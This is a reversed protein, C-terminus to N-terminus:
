RCLGRRRLNREYDDNVEQVKTDKTTVKKRSTVSNEGQRMHAPNPITTALSATTRYRGSGLQPRATDQKRFSFM